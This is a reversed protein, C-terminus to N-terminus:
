ILYTMMFDNTCQFVKMDAMNRVRTPQQLLGKWKLAVQNGFLLMVRGEYEKEKQSSDLAFRAKPYKVLVSFCKLHKLRKM